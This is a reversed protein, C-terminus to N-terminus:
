MVRAAHSSSGYALRELEDVVSEFTPRSGSAVLLCLTLLNGIDPWGQAVVKRHKLEAYSTYNKDIALWWTAM